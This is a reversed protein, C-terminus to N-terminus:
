CVQSVCQTDHSDGPITIQNKGDHLADYLYGFCLSALAHLRNDKGYMRQQKMMNCQKGEDQM